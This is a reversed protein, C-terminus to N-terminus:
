KIKDRNSEIINGVLADMGSRYFVCNPSIHVEDDKDPGSFSWEEKMKAIKKDLIVKKRYEIVRKIFSFM